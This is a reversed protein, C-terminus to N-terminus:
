VATCSGVPDVNLDTSKRHYASARGAGPHEPRLPKTVGRDYSAGGDPRRNNRDGTPTCIRAGM